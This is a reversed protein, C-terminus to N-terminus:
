DHSCDLLDRACSECVRLCSLYVFSGSVARAIATEEETSRETSRETPSCSLASDAGGCRSERWTPPVSPPIHQAKDTSRSILKLLRVPLRRLDPGLAVHLPPDSTM